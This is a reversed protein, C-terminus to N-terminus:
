NFYFLQFICRLLAVRNDDFICAGIERLPQHLLTHLVLKAENVLRADSFVRGLGHLLARQVCQQHRELHFIQYHIKGDACGIAQQMVIQLFTVHIALTEIQKQFM